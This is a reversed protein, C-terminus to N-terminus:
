LLHFEPGEVLIPRYTNDKRYKTKAGRVRASRPEDRLPGGQGGGGGVRACRREARQGVGCSARREGTTLASIALPGTQLAGKLQSVSNLPNNGNAAFDNYPLM